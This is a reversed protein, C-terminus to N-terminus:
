QLNFPLTLVTLRNYSIRNTSKRRSSLHTMWMGGSFGPPPPGYQAKQEFYEMYLNTGIPSVLSNM